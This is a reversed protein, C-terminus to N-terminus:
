RQKTDQELLMICNLFEINKHVLEAVTLTLSGGPESRLYSSNSANRSYRSSTAKPQTQHHQQQQVLIQETQMTLADSNTLAANLSLGGGSAGNCLNNAVALAAAAHHHVASLPSLSVGVNNGTIGPTTFASYVGSGINPNNSYQQQQQQIADLSQGMYPSSTQQPAYAASSAYAATLSSAPSGVRGYYQLQQPQPQQTLNPAYAAVQSWDFLYETSM